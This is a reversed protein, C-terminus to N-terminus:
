IYYKTKRFPADYEPKRILRAYDYITNRQGDDYTFEQTINNSGITLAAITATIGSEEFTVIEGVKLDLENTSLIILILIM